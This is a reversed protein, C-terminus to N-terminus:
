KLTKSKNWEVETESPNKLYKGLQKILQDSTEIAFNQCGIKVTYGYDLQKIVIEYKSQDEPYIEEECQPDTTCCTDEVEYQAEDRTISERSEELNKNM